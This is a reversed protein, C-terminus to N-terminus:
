FNTVPSSDKANNTLVNTALEFVQTQNSTNTFTYSSGSLVTFTGNAGQCFGGACTFNDVVGSCPSLYTLTAGTLDGGQIQPVVQQPCFSSPNDGAPNYTGGRLTIPGATLALDLIQHLIAKACNSDNAVDCREIQQHIYHDRALAHNAAITLALTILIKTM